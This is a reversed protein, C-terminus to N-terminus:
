FRPYLFPFRKELEEEEWPKGEPETSYQKEKVPMEKGTVHQYASPAAYMLEECEFVEEDDIDVYYGITSPMMLVSDYVMKGQGILWSRFYEFGDDSCGDNLIYAVGWLDWHYSKILRKTFHEDFSLIEEPTLEALLRFLRNAQRICKKARFRSQQIMEWFQSDTM